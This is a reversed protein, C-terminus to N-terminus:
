LKKIAELVAQKINANIDKRNEEYAPRLYPHPRVGGARFIARSVIYGSEFGHKKAWDELAGPPPAKTLRTKRLGFIGTGYEVYPAYEIKTGVIAYLKEKNVEKTLSARLNGTDVPCKIQASRLVALASDDLVKVVGERAKGELKQLKEQLKDLGEIKVKDM